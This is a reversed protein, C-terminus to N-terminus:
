RGVVDREGVKFSKGAHCLDQVVRVQRCPTARRGGANAYAGDRALIHTDHRLYSALETTGVSGEVLRDEGRLHGQNPLESEPTHVHRPHKYSHAM